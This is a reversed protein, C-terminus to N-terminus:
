SGDKTRRRKNERELVRRLNVQLSGNTLRDAGESDVPCVCVFAKPSTRRQNGAAECEGGQHGENQNTDASVVAMM